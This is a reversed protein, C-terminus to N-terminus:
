WDAALAEPVGAIAPLEGSQLTAQERV